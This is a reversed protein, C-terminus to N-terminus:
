ETVVFTKGEGCSDSAQKASEKKPLPGHKANYILSAPLKESRLDSTTWSLIKSPDKIDYGSWGNDCKSTVIHVGNQNVMFVPSKGAADLIREFDNSNSNYIESVPHRSLVLPTLLNFFMQINSGVDQPNDEDFWYREPATTSLTPLKRLAKYGAEIALPFIGFKLNGIDAIPVKFSAEDISYGYRIRCYPNEYYPDRYIVMAGKYPAASTVYVNLGNSEEPTGFFL